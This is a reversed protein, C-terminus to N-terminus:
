FLYYPALAKCNKAEMNVIWWINKAPITQGNKIITEIPLNLLKTFNEPKEFDPFIKQHASCEECSYDCDCNQPFQEGHKCKIQYEIGCIECLERSLDKSTM